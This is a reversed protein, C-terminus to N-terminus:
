ATKHKNEEYARHIIDYISGMASGFIALFQGVKLEGTRRLVVGHEFHSEFHAIQSWVKYRDLAFYHPTVEIWESWNEADLNSVWICSCVPYPHDPM